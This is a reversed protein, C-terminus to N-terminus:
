ELMQQFMALAEKIMEKAPFNAEEIGLWPLPKIWQPSQWVMDFQLGANVKGILAPKFAHHNDHITIAGGPGNCTTGAINKKLTAIKLTQCREVLNKWLYPQIYAGTVADSVVRDPGYREKFRSIFAKNEPQELCQFYGSCAYHGVASPGIDKLEVEGISFAVVPLKDPHIGSRNLYYYFALNSDGNITNFVMAPKHKKIDDVIRGFNEAGLPLYREGLVKVGNQNALTRIFRNATKPFIYDSGVLYCTRGLHEVAWEFAPEIQQNLCNGTYVINPSAELGEYQVPYWLMTNSEEVENKVAKRSASTWCGFFHRVRDNRNLKRTKLAYTAPDSACDEVLPQIRRGMIGGGANIEDFAMLAADVLPSESFSMTGSLSHLIGVKIPRKM